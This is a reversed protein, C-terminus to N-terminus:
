VDEVEGMEITGDKDKVIRYNSTKKFCVDKFNCYQCSDKNNGDKIPNITFENKNILKNFEHVFQDVKEIIERLKEEGNIEVKKGNPVVCNKLWEINKEDTKEGKFILGTLKFRKEDNNEENLFDYQDKIDITQIFAGLINYKNFELSNHLQYLYFPLQIDTGYKYFMKLNNSASGTKYDIVILDKKYINIRDIRGQIPVNNVCFKLEKEHYTKTIPLKKNQKRIYDSVKEVMLDLQELLVLEKISFDYNKKIVNSIEKFDFNEDYIKEFIEHYYNGVKTNFNSTFSDIKLINKLYYLFHCSAFCNISSASLYNNESIRDIGKFSNDYFIQDEFIGDTIRLEDNVDKFYKERYLYNLHYLYSIEKSFSYDLLKPKVTKFKLIKELLYSPNNKGNENSFSLFSVNELSVFTKTIENILANKFISPTLGHTEKIEDDLIDNNSVVRPIAGDLAGLIYIECTGDFIPRDILNIADIFKNQKIKHDKLISRFNIAFNTDNGLDYFDYLYRIIEINEDDENENKFTKYLMEFDSDLNNLIYRGAKTDILTKESNINIPLGFYKSYIKLYFQYSDSNCYILFDSPKYGNSIKSAIENLAYKVEEDINLFNLIEHKKNLFGLNRIELFSYQNEGIKKIISKIEPDEKLYGVFVINKGKYLNLYLEDVIILNEDYLWKFNKNDDYGRCLFDLYKKAIEYTFGDHKMLSKITNENYTGFFEGLVTEKTKYQFSINPNQCKYSIFYSELEKPGIVISNEIIKKIEETM